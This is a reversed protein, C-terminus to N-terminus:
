RSARLEGLSQEDYQPLDDSIDFWSSKHEIFIHRQPQLRLDGQLLGACVEFWPSEDGPDPVASGCQECFCVRYAPPEKVIPAEYSRIRDRGRIWTFDERAVGVTALFASGSLRRCRNCHCLEFPGVVRSLTFQVTGCLCQGHIM